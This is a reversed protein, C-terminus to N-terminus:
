DFLDLGLSVEPEGSFGLSMDSALRSRSPDHAFILQNKLRESKPQIQGICDFGKGVNTANGGANQLDDGQVKM